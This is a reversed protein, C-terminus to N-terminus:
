DPAAFFFPTSGVLTMLPCFFMVVVVMVVVVVVLIEL